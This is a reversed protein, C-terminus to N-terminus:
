KLWKEAFEIVLDEKIGEIGDEKDFIIYRDEDLWDYYTNGYGGSSKWTEPIRESCRTRDVIMHPIDFLEAWNLVGATPGVFMSANNVIKFFENIDRNHYSTVRDFKRDMLRFAEGCKWFKYKNGYRCKLINFIHIFNRPNSNRYSSWSSNRFHFLIYPEIDDKKMHLSPRIGYEDFYMNLCNMVGTRNIKGVPTRKNEYMKIYGNYLVDSETLDVIRDFEDSQWNNRDVFKIPLITENPCRVYIEKHYEPGCTVRTPWEFYINDYGWSKARFYIGQVIQAVNGLGTRRQHESGIWFIIKSM